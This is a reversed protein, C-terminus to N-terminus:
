NDKCVKLSGVERDLPEYTTSGSTFTCLMLSVIIYINIIRHEWPDCKQLSDAAGPVGDAKYDVPKNYICPDMYPFHHIGDVARHVTNKINKRSTCPYHEKYFMASAAFVCGFITRTFNLLGDQAVNMKDVSRTKLWIYLIHKAGPHRVRELPDYTTPGSLSPVYHRRISPFTWEGDSAVIQHEQTDAGFLFETSKIAPYLPTKVEM